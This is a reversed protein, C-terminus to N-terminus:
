VVRQCRKCYTGTPVRHPCPAPKSGRGARRTEPDRAQSDANLPQRRAAPPAADRRAAVAEELLVIIQGNLSRREQHRLRDIQERLEGPLRVSMPFTATKSITV